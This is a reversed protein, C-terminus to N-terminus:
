EVIPCADAILHNITESAALKKYDNLVLINNAVPRSAWSKIMRMPAYKTVPVWILRAKERLEKSAQFTKRPNMPSGDTIVIVVSQASARGTRLEAGATALAASTLTTAKPWEMNGVTEALSSTDTSFHSVWIIKCDSALDVSASGGGTCRQYADWNSPGSYLLVAVRAKDASTDFARVLKQAMSKTAEWGEEGISASGDLLIVVDIKALCRLEPGKPECKHRNCRKYQLRATSDARPCSGQGKIPDTVRRERVMFGGDCAKSCASWPTWSALRCDRDCSASNCSVSESTAECPQGGFASRLITARVRQKIGGGCEASCASWGSWAELKCDVPCQQENCKRQMVLPPCASGMNAPVVVSRTLKQVGGGCTRSCEDPIWDSVECDQIFPRMMEMKYLEQRIQKVGCLEVAISNLNANCQEQTSKSERQLQVLQEGMLRSQEEAEIMMKTAEALAAQQDRLRMQIDIMQAEYNRRTEACEAELKFLSEKMGDAKDVIQTQMLLFKDRLYDCNPNSSISCKRMQMRRDQPMDTTNTANGAKQMTGRRDRSLLALNHGHANQGMRRQFMGRRQLDTAGLMENRGRLRVDGFGRRLRSRRTAQHGAESKAVARLTRQMAKRAIGTRLQAVSRRMLHHRFVVFSTNSAKAHRRDCQILMSAVSTSCRTMGAVKEITGVDEHVLGIQAKLAEADARCKGDNAALAESLRPLKDEAGALSTQIGLIRARSAAGQSNYEGIDRRAEETMAHQKECTESCKVKEMDLKKEAEEAMNNLLKRAQDASMMSAATGQTAKAKAVASNMRVERRTARLQFFASSNLHHLSIKNGGVIQQSILTMLETPGSPIVQLAREMTMNAMLIKMERRSGVQLFAERSISARVWPEVVAVNTQSVIPVGVAAATLHAVLAVAGTAVAAKM